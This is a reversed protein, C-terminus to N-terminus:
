GGPPPPAGEPPPRTLPAGPREGVLEIVRRLEESAVRLAMRLLETQSLAPSEPYADLFAQRIAESGAFFAQDTVWQLAYFAYGPSEHTPPLLAPRRRDPM